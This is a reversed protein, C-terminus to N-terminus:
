RRAPCLLPSRNARLPSSCLQLRGAVQPSVTARKEKWLGATVYITILSAELCLILVTSVWM